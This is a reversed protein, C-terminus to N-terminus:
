LGWGMWEDVRSRPPLLQLARGRALLRTRKLRFTPGSRNEVNMTAAQLRADRPSTECRGRRSRCGSKTRIGHILVARQSVKPNIDIALPSNRRASPTARNRARVEAHVGADGRM